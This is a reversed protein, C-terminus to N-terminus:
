SAASDIEAIVDALSDYVIAAKRADSIYSHYRIEALVCFQNKIFDDNIWGIKITLDKYIDVKYQSLDGVFANGAAVKNAETIDWNNAFSPRLYTGELNKTCDLIAGTVPNIGVSNPQFNNTVVQAWMARLADWNNAEAIAGDLGNITYGPAIAIVDAQVLSDWARLVDESLMRRVATALAPVDEEFEETIVVYAPVKKATSLEVKFTHEVLPKAVGEATVVPAGEYLIENIWALRSSNTRGIDVKGLIYAPDRMIGFLELSTGELGPAYPSDPPSDMAAISGGISTIGAAKLEGLTFEIVGRGDKKLGKIKDINASIVDEITKRGPKQKLNELGANLKTGMEKISEEMTALTDLKEQIKAIEESKFKEFDETKMASKAAQNLRTELDKIESKLGENEAKIKKAAEIGVKEVLDNFQKEDM